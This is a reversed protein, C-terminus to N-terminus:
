EAGDAAIWEAVGARVAEAVARGVAEGVATHTGAYPTEGPRCALVICDTGTGTAVGTAVRHGAEIVAATRAQTAVSLAELQAPETLAADTACVLNITGRGKPAGARRRGVREANTLGVTACCTARVGEVEAEAVRYRAVNRSTLLGVADAAGRAALETRLWAAADLDETLDSDRVERWLVRDATVLGSRAPAWSLCRMPRPLRVELWPRALAIDLGRPPRAAGLEALEEEAM